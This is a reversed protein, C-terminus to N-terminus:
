LSWDIPQIGYEELAANARSFPKSGFFGNHASMPSPHASEIITHRSHILDKKERAYRGWLIFVAPIPRENLLSLTADTFTEWGKGQHSGAEHARVTLTANLLFVGQRAWPLLHGTKPPEVGLDSKLEKFINQLSPPPKVGPLVSFSLGHAQGAGHYPDQGLIVVKVDEYPTERYANFVDAAPPFVVHHAREERVYATLDRFYPRVFETALERKWSDHM